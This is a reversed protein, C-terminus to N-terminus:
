GQSLKRGLLLVKKHLDSLNKMVATNRM